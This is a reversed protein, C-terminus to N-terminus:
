LMWVFQQKWLKCCSKFTGDVSSRKSKSFLQLLKKSTYALVRKALNKSSPPPNEPGDHVDEQIGIDEITVDDIDNETSSIDEAALDDEEDDEYNRMNENLRDWRYESNPNSKNIVEQWDDPLKNSDLVEIKHDDGYIRKLFFNPNFHDRSKPNQGIISNRVRFLRLEM